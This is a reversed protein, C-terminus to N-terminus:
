VFKNDHGIMEMAFVPLTLVLAVWFRRRMDIYESNPEDSAALTLVELTMGCTPCLGPSPQRIKLHMPCTYIVTEGVKLASIKQKRLDHTESHLPAGM